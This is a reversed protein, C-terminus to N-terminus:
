CTEGEKEKFLLVFFLAIMSPIMFATQGFIFLCIVGIGIGILSNLRLSKDYWKELFLVFILATLVFELGSLEFPLAQGIIGGLLSAFAWYLYNLLTIAGYFHKLSVNKPPEVTSVLSFTEDSLGFALVYRFNGFPKFRSLLSLGYFLHRANVMLSLLFVQIPDFAVSLLTIAVFQMSGCYCFLSFLFAWLPSYGQTSLIIGYTIGLCGFGMLVPLTYPFALVIAKGFLSANKKM